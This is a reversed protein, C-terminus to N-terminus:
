RVSRDDYVAYEQETKAYSAYDTQTSKESKHHTDVSFSKLALRSEMAGLKRQQGGIREELAGLKMHQSAYETRLADLKKELAGCESRTRKLAGLSKRLDTRATQTRFNLDRVAGQCRSMLRGLDDIARSPDEVSSDLDGCRILPEADSGTADNELMANEKCISELQRVLDAIKKTGKTLADDIRADANPILASEGRRFLTPTESSKTQTAVSRVKTSEKQPKKYKQILERLRNVEDTRRDLQQSLAELTRKPNIATSSQQELTELVRLRQCKAELLEQLMELQKAHTQADRQAKDREYLLQSEAKQLKQQLNQIILRAMVKRSKDNEARATEVRAADSQQEMDNARAFFAGVVVPTETSKQVAPSTQGVSKLPTSPSSSYSASSTRHKKYTMDLSLTSLKSKLRSIEVDKASLIERLKLVKEADSLGYADLDLDLAAKWAQDATADEARVALLDDYSSKGVGTPLM